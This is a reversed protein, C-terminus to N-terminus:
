SEVIRRINRAIGGCVYNTAAINCEVKLLRNFIVHLEKAIIIRQLSMASLKRRDISYPM